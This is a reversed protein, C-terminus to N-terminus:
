KQPTLRMIYDLYKKRQNETLSPDNIIKWTLYEKQGQETSMDFSVEDVAFVEDKREVATPKEIINGDKDTIKEKEGTLDYISQFKNDQDKIKPTQKTTKGTEYTIKLIDTKNTDYADLFELDEGTLPDTPGDERKVQEEEFKVDIIKGGGKLGTQGFLDFPNEKYFKNPEGDKPKIMNNIRSREREFWDKLDKDAQLLDYEWKDMDGGTVDKAKYPKGVIAGYAESQTFGKKNGYQEAGQEAMYKNIAMVQEESGNWKEDSIKEAFLIMADNDGPIRSNSFPDFVDTTLMHLKLLDEGNMLAGQGPSKPDEVYFPNKVPRDKGAITLTPQHRQPKGTATNIVEGAPTWRKFMANQTPNISEEFMETYRHNDEGNDAEIMSQATEFSEDLYDPVINILDGGTLNENLLSGLRLAYGNTEEKENLSNTFEQPPMYVTLEGDEDEVLHVDAGGQIMSMMMTQLEDPTTSSVSGQDGPKIGLSSKYDVIMQLLLPQVRGWTKVQNNIKDLAKSGYSFTDPNAAMGNAIAAYNDKLQYLWNEVSSDFQKSGIDTQYNGVNFSQGYLKIQDSYRKNQAEKEKIRYANNNNQEVIGRKIADNVGKSYEQFSKDVFVQPNTYSNQRATIRAAKINPIVSPIKYTAM